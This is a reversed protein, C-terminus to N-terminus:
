PSRCWGSSRATTSTASWGAASPWARGRDSADALQAAGGGPRAAGRGPAREGACPQGRQGGHRGLGPRGRGPDRQLRDCGRAPRGAGCAVGRAGLGAGATGGPARECRRVHGLRAALVRADPLRRRPGAGPRRPARRPAAGRGAPGVLDSVAGGRALSTRALGALFIYPMLGFAGLGLIVVTDHVPDRVGIIGLALSLALMVMLVVGAALVPRVGRGQPGSAARWRRALEWGTGVVAIATLTAIVVLTTTAIVPVEAVQLVNEPCDDCGAGDSSEFLVFPLLGVTTIVYAVKVTLRDWRDRLEGTPYALLLHIAVAAFLSGLLQGVAFVGPVDSAQLLGLPLTLGVAVMLLGTRNCPRRQWSILGAGLFGGSVVANLAIWAARMELHESTLLLPVPMAILLVGAVAVAVLRGQTPRVAAGALCARVARRQRHLGARRQAPRNRRLRLGRSQLDAGGRAGGNRALRATVEFGDLDPLGVDVLVLDPTLRAVQRLAEMGDAAEGVVEYGECELLARASARFSPHDDVILVSLAM